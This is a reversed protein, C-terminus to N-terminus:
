AIGVLVSVGETDSSVWRSSVYLEDRMAGFARRPMASLPVGSEAEYRQMKDFNKFRLFTGDPLQAYVRM